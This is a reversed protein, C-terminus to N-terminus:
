QVRGMAAHQAEQVLKFLATNQVKGRKEKIVGPKYTCDLNPDILAYKPFSGVNYAEQCLPYPADKEGYHSYSSIRCVGRCVKYFVCNSCVGKVNGAGIERLQNFFSSNRWIDILPTDFANGAIMDPDDYSASCMSIQGTSLIGLVNDGWGCTHVGKFNALPMLAPPLTLYARGSKFHETGMIDGVLGNCEEITIANDLHGRANGIPHINLLTRHRDVGWEFVLDLIKPIAAFNYRNATTTVVSQVSSAGIDRLTGETKSFAGQKGRFEDHKDPDFHDLSIFVVLNLIQELQAIMEPKFLTGNTELVIEPLGLGGLYRMIPMFEPHVMPEGGSVKVKRLGHPLAQEILSRITELNFDIDKAKPGVGEIYCHQCGLNCKRTLFLYITKLDDTGRRGEHQHNVMESLWSRVTDENEVPELWEITSM